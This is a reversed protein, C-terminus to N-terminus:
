RIIIRVLEVIIIKIIGRRTTNIIRTRIEKNTILEERSIIMKNIEITRSIKKCMVKSIVRKIKVLTRGKTIITEIKIKLGVNMTIIEISNLGKMKMRKVRWQFLIGSMMRNHMRNNLKKITITKIETTTTDKKTNNDKNTITRITIKELNEKITKTTIKRHMPKKTKNLNTKILLMILVEEVKIILVDTIETAIQSTKTTQKKIEWIATKELRISSDEKGM